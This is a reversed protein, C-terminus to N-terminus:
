TVIGASSAALATAARAAESSRKRMETRTREPMDSFWWIASVSRMRVRLHPCDDSAAAYPLAMPAVAPGRQTMGVQVSVVCVRDITIWRDDSLGEIEGETQQVCGIIQAGDITWLAWTERSQNM